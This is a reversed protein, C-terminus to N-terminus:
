HLVLEWLLLGRQRCGTSTRATSVPLLGASTEFGSLDYGIEELGRESHQRTVRGIYWQRIAPLFHAIITGSTLVLVSM